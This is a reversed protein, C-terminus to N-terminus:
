KRKKAPPQPVEDDDDEDEEDEDDDDEEEDGDEDDDDDEDGSGGEGNAEPEDEPDGEGEGEEGSGDEEEGGDDDQEDGEDDDEDEDDETESADTNEPGPKKVAHLESIPFSQSTDLEKPLISVAGTLPKMMLLSCALGNVAFIATEALLAELVSSLFSSSVAAHSLVTDM